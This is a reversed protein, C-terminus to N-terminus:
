GKSAKRHKASHKARAAAATKRRPAQSLPILVEADKWDERTTPPPNGKFAEQPLAFFEEVLTKEKRTSM